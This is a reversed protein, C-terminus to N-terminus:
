HTMTDRQLTSHGNFVRSLSMVWYSAFCVCSRQLIKTEWSRCYYFCVCINRTLALRVFNACAIFHKYCCKGVSGNKKAHGGSWYQRVGSALCSSNNQLKRAVATSWKLIFHNRRGVAGKLSQKRDYHFTDRWSFGTANNLDPNGLSEAVVAFGFYM